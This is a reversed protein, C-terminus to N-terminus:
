LNISYLPVRALAVRHKVQHVEYAYEGGKGVDNKFM